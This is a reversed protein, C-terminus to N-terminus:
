TGVDMAKGRFRETLGVRAAEANYPVMPVADPKANDKAVPGALLGSAKQDAVANAIFELGL